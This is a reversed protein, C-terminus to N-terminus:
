SSKHPKSARLRHIGGRAMTATVGEVVCTVTTSCLARNIDASIFVLIACAAIQAASAVSTNITKSTLPDDSPLPGTWTDTLVGGDSTRVSLYFGVLDFSFHSDLPKLRPKDTVEIFVPM